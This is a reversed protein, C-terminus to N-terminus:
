RALGAPINLASLLGNTMNLKSRYSKMIKIFAFPCRLFIEMSSKQPQSPTISNGTLKIRSNQHHHIDMPSSFRIGFQINDDSDFFEMKTINDTNKITLPIALRTVNEQLDSV